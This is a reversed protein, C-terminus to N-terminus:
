IDFDGEEDDPPTKRAEEFDSDDFDDDSERVKVNKKKEAKKQIPKEPPNTKERNETKQYKVGIGKYNCYTKETSFILFKSVVHEGTITVNLIDDYSGKFEDYFDIASCGNKGDNVTNWKLKRNIKAYGSEDKLDNGSFDNHFTHTSCGLLVILTLLLLRYM